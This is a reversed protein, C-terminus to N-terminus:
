VFHKHLRPQPGSHMRTHKSRAPPLAPPAYHKVIYPSPRASAQPGPLHCCFHKRVHVLLRRMGPGACPNHTIYICCTHAGEHPAAAPGLALAHASALDPSSRCPNPTRAGISARAHPGACRSKQGAYHAKCWPTAQSNSAQGQPPPRASESTSLTQKTHYFCRNQLISWARGTRTNYHETHYAGRSM